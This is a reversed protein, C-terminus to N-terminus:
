VDLFDHNGVFEPDGVVTIERFISSMSALYFYNEEFVDSVDRHKSFETKGFCYMNRVHKCM